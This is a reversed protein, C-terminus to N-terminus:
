SRIINAINNISLFQIILNIIRMISLTKILLCNLIYHSTRLEISVLLIIQFLQNFRDLIFVLLSILILLSYLIMLCILFWNFIQTRTQYRSLLKFKRMNNTFTSKSFYPFHLFPFCLFYISHLFHTFYFHNSLFTYM